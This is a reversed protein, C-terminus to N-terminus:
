RQRLLWANLRNRFGEPDELDAARLRAPHEPDGLALPVADLLNPLRHGDPVSWLAGRCEEAPVKGARRRENRGDWAVTKEQLILFIPVRRRPALTEIGGPPGMVRLM